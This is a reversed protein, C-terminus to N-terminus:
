LKEAVRLKASRSRPNTEIEEASPLVPKGTVMRVVPKVDCRCVPMDPPCVCGRALSAFVSKVLRDELSHYSIVAVRGGPRLWRVAAELGRGLAELEANVEIRLAQFTRRAPHPGTRRAAAPIADRVIEALESTTTLPVRSRAAVIRAAIRSAWREEGFERIVRALEESSYTNVVEAATIGGSEPDMRMDLPADAKYSFGREAFDLQPSSVGLDMLIGDAYVIGAQALLTDLEGFNGKMLVAQQGLRLTVAAADLAAQDQDIGVLIGDPEILDQIRRAHGAGGLTCDVIVSGPKLSLQQTVEALLVPTHRYEM